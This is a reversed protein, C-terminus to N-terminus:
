SQPPADKPPFNIASPRGSVDFAPKGRVLAYGVGGIAAFLSPFSLGMLLLGIDQM